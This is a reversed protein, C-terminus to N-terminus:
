RVFRFFYATWRKGGDTAGVLILAFRASLNTPKLSTQCFFRMSSINRLYPGKCRAPRPIPLVFNGCLKPRPITGRTLPVGGVERVRRPARISRPGGARDDNDLAAGLTPGSRRVVSM